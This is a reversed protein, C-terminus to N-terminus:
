VTPEWGPEYERKWLNMARENGLIHGNEASCHLTTGTRYAINGLHCLLTSKHGIEIEANLNLHEGTRIATLLNNIHDENNLSGEGSDVEKDNIDFVKYSGNGDIEMTGAEGYFAVFGSSHKHKNCSLTQWTIQKGGPFEFTAVQTDPTQQDDQFRYRGGSSIVNIPYDVELGWRCVDLAHVGNNALEGGGWHWLWHWNYHMRNDYFPVRPAPGQWLEYDLNAPVDVHQGTGISPRLNAYWAQSCYVRGIAGDHLKGIAEIYGASSRRQTGLQVARDHKRAAAIMAEGEWPNHSCPKECYVHKGAQTALITAPAHWHNPAACVFIDLEPDDLMKRFDSVVEAVQGTDRELETAASGSRSLDVDCLYKIVVNEQKGFSTALSRGRSLGMVGVNLKEAGSKESKQAAAIALASATAGVSAGIFTRRSVSDTMLGM